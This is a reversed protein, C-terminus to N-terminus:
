AEKIGIHADIPKVTMEGIFAEYTTGDDKIVWGNNLFYEGDEDSVTRIDGEFFADRGHKFNCKCLIKM